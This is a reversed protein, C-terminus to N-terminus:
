APEDDAPQDMAIELTAIDGPIVDIAQTVVRDGRSTTITATLVTSGLEVPRLTIERTDTSVELTVVADGGDALTWRIDDISTTPDDPVEHGRADRAVIRGTVHKGVPLQSMSGGFIRETPQSDKDDLLPGFTLYPLAVGYTLWYAIADATDVVARNAEPGPQWHEKHLDVALQAADLRFEEVPDQDQPPNVVTAVGIMM